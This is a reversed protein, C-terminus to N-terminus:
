MKKRFILFISFIIALILGIMVLIPLKGHDSGSFLVPQVVASLATAILLQVGKGLFYTRTIIGEGVSLTQMTVCLGGASLLISALVFRIGESSVEQLRVCGNSLELLGSILVQVTVPLRWLFWMKSFGLLVRFIIIWGCVSAMTKITKDMAGTISLKSDKMLVCTESSLSPLLAGVFIASAIQIVWLIWATSRSSFMTSLIGFIFAPGANNCFAVMRAASKRSLNGDRYANGILQAGVPYGALLGLLLISESGSPIKCLRGIPRVLRINQGLLSSNLIGSLIFFPFLSPVVTRLCLDIGIIANELATKGDLIVTLMLIGSIIAYTRENKRRM